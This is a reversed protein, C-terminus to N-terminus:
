SDERGNKSLPEMAHDSLRRAYLSPLGASRRAIQQRSIKGSATRPLPTQWIVIEEPLKWKALGAATLHAVVDAFTIETAATSRLALVLREGTVDDPVGYAACEGLGEAASDIEALSIKMGKRVVVEKLRGTIKIRGSDITALDGTRVWDGRFAQANDAARLYGHFRHPGSVLLEPPGDTDISVAVGAHPAGDDDLSEGGSLSTSCSFPAESSGYVRVTTIGLRQALTLLIPPIMSGGVAICRLPLDMCQQEIAEELLTQMIIPAGGIVTADNACLRDLSDTASFHEELILKAHAAITAHLQIVGTISALPAPLLFADDACINLAATMNAVGCRLSNLTHIVGKPTSTTGSTFIVAAARDPDLLREHDDPVCGNPQRPADLSLVPCYQRLELRETDVDGALAATPPATAAANAVDAVGCKRDLLVAVAGHLVTALYAAVSHNRMSAIILVTDGPQVEATALAARIATTADALERYTWQSEHDVLAIRHQGGTLDALHDAVTRPARWHGDRRYAAASQASPPYTAQIKSM